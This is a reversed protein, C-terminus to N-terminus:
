KRIKERIPQIVGWRTSRGESVIKKKYDRHESTFRSITKPEVPKTDFFDHLLSLPSTFVQTFERGELVTKKAIMETAGMLPQM